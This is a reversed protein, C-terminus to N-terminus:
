QLNLASAAAFAQWDAATDIDSLKRLLAVKLGLHKARGLSQKLVANTGWDIRNFLGAHPRKAGVLWYGGDNAPGFVVDSKDLSEWAQAIDQSNLYPCDSGIVAVKSARQEIAATIAHHLRAGLDAGQQPRYRWHVPFYPRLEHEADAPSYCVTVNALAALNSAITRLLKQYAECAAEQGLTEALRTKVLGPRPAKAFILLENLGEMKM